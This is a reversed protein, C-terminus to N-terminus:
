KRRVLWVAGGAALTAAPLGALTVWWLTTMATESVDDIRRVDQTRAGSGILMEMGTLWFVSNTFIEGNAPFYLPGGAGTYPNFPRAQTVRDNAFFADGIIVARQDGKEVAFGATFPGTREDPDRKPDRTMGADREAWADEGTRIIPWTAVGESPEATMPVANLLVGTQGQVAASIPHDEPWNTRDIQPVAMERGDGTVISTVIQTGTEAIIGFQEELAAAMEDPVDFRTMPSLAVFTLVNQGESVLRRFAQNIQQQAPNYPMRPDPPPVPTFVWVVPRGPAVEPRPQPPSAGFQSQRGAPAWETVEFNLNSLRDAMQSYAGNPGITPQQGAVFVVLPRTKLTLAILAGTVAEEGRFRQETAPEGDQGVMPETYVDDLRIVSLADDTMVVAANAQGIKRRAANYDDTTQAAANLSELAADIRELQGQFLQGARVAFQKLDDPATESGALRDFLGVGPSLLGEKALTLPETAARNLYSSNPLPEAREDEIRTLISRLVVMEPFGELVQVVQMFRQRTQPDSIKRTLVAAQQKFAPAQEASFSQFGRLAEVGREVAARAPELDDAYRIRLEAAFAEYRDIDLTTDLHEVEIKGASRLAYEDLLDRFHNIRRNTEYDVLGGPFLTVIRVDTEMTALLQRTQPSLSYKRTATFDFRAGIGLERVREAAIWNALLVIVLTAIILVAVNAGYKFRRNWVARTTGLQEHQDHQDNMM